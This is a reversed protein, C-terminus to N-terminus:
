FIYLSMNVYGRNMFKLDRNCFVFIINLGSFTVDVNVRLNAYGKATVQVPIM